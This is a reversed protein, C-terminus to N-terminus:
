KARVKGLPDGAKWAPMKAADAVARGLNLTFQAQQVMGSLDWSPDYEDSVQHYRKGYAKAKEKAAEPDKIYDKGGGISFAPVGAKAFSFHDSRFYGGTLDPQAPAIKLQMSKAVKEAIEGLETRESGQTSVDRTIGVFNLSDLNLNAATKELPWLPQAAYLASGLLGQEEAAVWLFMQSRKGPSQIAAKAMALLGATGSANDVAGNYITDGTTGQKGLHDWHASYIIVEDKLKPDTGPVVAAVNYQEIQRIEAKAEGALKANLTVPKFDQQEAAARLKDLDQGAGSFLKRATDESIWGQFGTGPAAGSLQFKEVTGSNQVVSWGYSASADTHILLVGAAGRRMAEEYKYTWRGYYTLAKGGFRKADDATPQPDNVMMILLKGRMDQGKYDDWKEESASIGYGVFVIENDFQHTAQADGPAWVWDKGFDIALASGGAILQVSSQPPLARVGAIKVLQRYSNGNGPKLGIVQSQSELYQVTLDGGRQGTGRGEFSDSSLLAMHARLPGEEVMATKNARVKDAAHLPFAIALSIAISSLLLPKNM